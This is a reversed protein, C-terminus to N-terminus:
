QWWFVALACDAESIEKLDVGTNQRGFAVFGDIFASAFGTQNFPEIAGDTLTATAENAFRERKGLFKGVVNTGNPVEDVVVITM